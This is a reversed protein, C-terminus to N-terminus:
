YTTGALEPPSEIEGVDYIAIVNPHQLAAAARAERIMRAAGDTTPSSGAITSEPRLIKLAIDRALRSDHARYVEGMGGAGLPAVIRYRDVRDGPSLAVIRLM